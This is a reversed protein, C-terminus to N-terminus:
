AVDENHTQTHKSADWGGEIYYFNNLGFSVQEEHQPDIASHLTCGLVTLDNSLDVPSRDLLMLNGQAM